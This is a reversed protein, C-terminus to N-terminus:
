DADFKLESIKNIIKEKNKELLDSKESLILSIQERFSIIFRKNNELM